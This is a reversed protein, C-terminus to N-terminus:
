GGKKAGAERARRTLQERLAAFEEPPIAGGQSVRKGIRDLEADLRAEVDADVGGMRGAVAERVLRRVDEVDGAVAQGAAGRRELETLAADLRAATAQGKLVDLEEPALQGSLYRKKLTAIAGELRKQHQGLDLAQGRAALARQVMTQALLDFDQETAGRAKAKEYLERFAAEFRADAAHANVRQAEEPAVKGQKSQERLAVVMGALRARREALAPDQAIADEVRKLDAESVSGAAAKRQLEALADETQKAAAARRGADAPQAPPAPKPQEAQPPPAGQAQGGRQAAHAAAALLGAAVLTTLTKSM